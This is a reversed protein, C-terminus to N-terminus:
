RRATAAATGELTSCADALARRVRRASTTALVQHAVVETRSQTAGGARFFRRRVRGIVVVGADAPLASVWAPGDFCAVPATEAPKGEGRITVELTVLSTGSPLQRLEAPRALRGELVVLNLM